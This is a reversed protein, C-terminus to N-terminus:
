VQTNEFKEELGKEKIKNKTNETVIAYIISLIPLGVIM